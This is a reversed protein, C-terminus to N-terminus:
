GAPDAASGARGDPLGPGPPSARGTCPPPSRRLRTLRDRLLAFLSGLPHDANEGVENWVAEFLELAQQYQPETEIPAAVERVEPPLQAWATLVEAHDTM